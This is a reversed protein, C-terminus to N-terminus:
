WNKYCKLTKNTIQKISINELLLTIISINCYLVVNNDVTWQQVKLLDSDKKMDEIFHNCILDEEEEVSMGKYCAVKHNYTMKYGKLSM